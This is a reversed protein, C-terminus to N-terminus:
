GLPKSAPRLQALEEKARAPINPVVKEKVVTDALDFQFFTRWGPEDRKAEGIQHGLREDTIFGYEESRTPLVIVDSNRWEKILQLIRERTQDSKELKSLAMLFGRQSHPQLDVMFRLDHGALNLVVEVWSHEVGKERVRARVVPDFGQAELLDYMAVTYHSGSIHELGLKPEVDKPRNRVEEDIEVETKEVAGKVKTAVSTLLDRTRSLEDSPILSLENSPKINEVIEGGAM